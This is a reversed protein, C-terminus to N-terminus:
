RGKYHNKKDEYMRKDATRMATIIGTGTPDHYAGVAISVGCSGDTSRRLKEAFNNLEKETVGVMLAMFEDGGARYLEADPLIERLVSAASKILLDGAAHGDRDNVAKLGNIDSFIVGIPKGAGSKILEDVRNNMANRNFVGTLLDLVSVDRLRKIIQQGAIESALVFSTLELVEKISTTKSTDCNTAWIYGLLTNSFILPFLVLSTVDAGTLSEYWAPNCKRIIEMDQENRIILCSSEEIMPEWSRTLGYFSDNVYYSMPRLSSGPDKSECLVECSRKEDDTLLICCLQAFCLERLDGIVENMTKGFDKAGRLKLCIKLVDASTKASLDSMLELDADTSIEQTYTCYGKTPDDSVLPMMTVNIWFPYVDPKIYKHVQRKQVACRFCMEEFNVDKPIYKEYESGPIFKNKLMSASSVQTADEISRIYADNGAEIRITGYGGDKKEVSIICTMGALSDAVKQHDM